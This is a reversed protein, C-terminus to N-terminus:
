LGGPEIRQSIHVVFSWLVGFEEITIYDRGQRMSMDVCSERFLTGLEFELFEEVVIKFFDDVGGLLFIFFTEFEM